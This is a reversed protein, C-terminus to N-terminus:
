LELYEKVWRKNGCRYVKIAGLTNMIYDEKSGEAEKNALDYIDPYKERLIKLQCSHRSISKGKMYWYYDPSTYGKFEFGLSKYVSGDFYNNDSYSIVCKPKYDREFRKLLKSAGGVVCINDKSAYRFIEYINEEKIDKSCYRAKGFSMLSILEENYFLGYSVNGQTIYGQIHYLEFFARAERSTVSRISCERAYIKKTPLIAYKIISKIKDCVTNWDNEFISILRIGKKECMIFKDQHYNSKKRDESHYYSGNYEIALSYDPIYFDLEKYENRNEGRLIKRSNRIIQEEKLGISLLFDYIEKEKISTHHSCKKCTGLRKPSSDKLNILSNVCVTIPKHCHSCLIDVYDTTKLLGEIACKKQEENVLRNIFWEPYERKCNGCSKYKGSLLDSKRVTIINGCACLCEIKRETDTDFEDPIIIKQVILNGYHKGIEPDSKNGISLRRDRLSKRNMCGCSTSAGSLISSKAIEVINGCVCKCRYYQIPRGYMDNKYIKELFTLYKFQKGIEPDSLEGRETSLRNLMCQKCKQCQRSKGGLLNSKLVNIVEGCSCRCSYQIYHKGSPTIYDEVREIFTLNGFVEGAKPDQYKKSRNSMSCSKCLLTGKLEGNSKFRNGYITIYHNSCQPCILEINDYYTIEGHSYREKVSPEAMYNLIDEKTM